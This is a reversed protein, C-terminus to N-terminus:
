NPNGGHAAAMAEVLDSARREIDAALEVSAAHEVHSGLSAAEAEGLADHVVRLLRDAETPPRGLADLVKEIQVTHQRVHSDFRLLRHRVSMPEPEWFYSTAGLEDETVDAFDSLTRSEARSFYEFLAPLPGGLIGELEVYPLGIIEDWAEEPIETPPDGARACRLGHTVAVHFGTETRAMHSVTQRVSWENEQPPRDALEDDLRVLIGELQRFGRHHESLIRQAETPPDGASTRLSVTHAALSRLEEATRLIGFRVGEEEHPGWTWPSALAADPVDRFAGELMAVAAHLDLHAM